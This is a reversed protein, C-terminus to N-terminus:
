GEYNFKIKGTQIANAWTMREGKISVTVMHGEQALALQQQQQPTLVQRLQSVSYRAVANRAKEGIQRAQELNRSMVAERFAKQTTDDAQAVYASCSNVSALWNDAVTTYHAVADAVMDDSLFHQKAFDPSIEGTTVAEKVIADVRDPGVHKALFTEPLSPEYNVLANDSDKQAQDEARAQADDEANLEDLATEYPSKERDEAEATQPTDVSKGRQQMAKPAEASQPIPAWALGTAAEWEIPQFTLRFQEAQARTMNIGAVNITQSSEIGSSVGNSEGFAFNRVPEKGDSNSITFEGNTPQHAVGRGVYAESRQAAEREQRQIDAVIYQGEPSSPDVNALRSYDVGSTDMIPRGSASTAPKDNSM